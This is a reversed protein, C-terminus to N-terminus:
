LKKVFTPTHWTSVTFSKSQDVQVNRYGVKRGLYKNYDKKFECKRLNQIRKLVKRLNMLHEWQTESYILIDYLYVTVFEDLIDAFTLYM